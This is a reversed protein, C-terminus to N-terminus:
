EAAGEALAEDFARRMRDLKGRAILFESRGDRFVAYFNSDYPVFEVSRSSGDTLNYAVTVAPERYTPTEPAEADFLLGIAWQYLDRFLEEDIEEGNLYFTEIPEIPEGDENTAGEEPPEGGPWEREISGVYRADRYQVVFNDVLDINLILSFSSILSYPTTAILDEAGSMVFVSEGFAFTAYRGGDTQEGFLVQLRNEPDDIRLRARPPNLGYRRLDQPNDDVFRIIRLSSLATGLTEMFQTNFAHVRRYPQEVVYMNNKLEPDEDFEAEETRRVVIRRGNLNDIEVRTIQQPDVQPISKDRLDDMTYFFPTIWTNYVLYVSESDATKVYYSDRAPTSDGILLKTEGEETQRVTVTAQPQDLGYQALDEAEEAITRRASLSSAGSVIRNVRSATFKVDYPYVPRFGNDGASEISLQEAGREITVQEIQDRPIELLTTRDENPTFAPTAEEPPRDRLLVLAVVLGAIVVAAGILTYGRRRM